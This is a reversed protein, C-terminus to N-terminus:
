RGEAAERARREADRLARQRAWRQEWSEELMLPAPSRAPVASAADGSTPEQHSQDPRAPTSPSHMRELAGIYSSAVILAAIVAAAHLVGFLYGQWDQAVEHGPATNVSYGTFWCAVLMCVIVFVAPGDGDSGTEISCVLLGVPLSLACVTAYVALVQVASAGVPLVQAFHGYYACFAVVLAALGVLDVGPVFPVGNPGAKRSAIHVAWLTAVSLGSFVFNAAMAQPLAVALTAAFGGAVCLAAWLSKGYLPLNLSFVGVGALVLTALGLFFRALIRQPAPLTSFLM